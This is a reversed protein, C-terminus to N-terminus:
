QGDGATTKKERVRPLWLDAGMGVRLGAQSPLKVKIRFVQKAREEPTQVNRPTFESQGAIFSITGQIRQNPFGDVSVEVTDGPQWSLQDEPIYARLWLNELDLLTLVPSNPSVLDGPQLELADVTGAINAVIKLERMQVQIAALAAETARMEAQAQQLEEKRYGKKALDLAAKAEALEARAAAVEEERTGKTLLQLQEQRAQITSEAVHLDEIAKDVDERTITRADRNFLDMARAHTKKAREAQAEALTLWARATEIEEPRAGAVLMEVKSSLRDMRAQVQAVEEPRLGAELRDVNAKQAALRAEAENMRAQLDHPELEVLVDGAQVRQGERVFVSKVRGGVRSGLRIDDAEIFGSVQVSSPGRQSYLLAALLAAVVVVIVVIRSLM